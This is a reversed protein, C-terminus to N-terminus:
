PEKSDPADIEEIGADRLAQSGTLGTWKRVIEAGLRVGWEELIRFDMSESRTASV